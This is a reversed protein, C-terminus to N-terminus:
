RHWRNVEDLWDVVTQVLERRCASFVHDGGPFRRWALDPLAALLTTYHAPPFLEDRDGTCLLVPRGALSHAVSPLGALQGWEAALKEGSTGHLAAAFERAMEPPLQGQGPDSLPSLLAVARFRPDAAAAMGATWGGMSMGVIALREPDTSPRALAWEAAARTDDVLNLFSYDGQSGWSGRYHFYLCNWGADRLAYAIDLNKEVGPVGHLLLATPRPAAGGARYFGGLLRCGGSHFIAGDLGAESTM